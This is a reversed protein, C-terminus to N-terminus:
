LSKREQKVKMRGLFTENTKGKNDENNLNKYVKKM